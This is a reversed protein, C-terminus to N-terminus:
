ITDVVILSDQEAGSGVLARGDGFFLLKEPSKPLKAPSHEGMLLDAQYWNLLVVFMFSFLSHQRNKIIMFFPQLLELLVDTILLVPLLFLLFLCRLSELLDLLLTVLHPVFKFNSIILGDVGFEILGRRFLWLGVEFLLLLRGPCFCSLLGLLRLLFLNVLQEVKKILLLFRIELVKDGVFLDLLYQYIELCLDFLEFLLFVPPFLLELSYLLLPVIGTLLLFFTFIVNQASYATLRSCLRNGALLCSFPDLLELLFLLLYFPIFHRPGFALSHCTNILLYSLM